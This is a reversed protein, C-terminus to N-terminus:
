FVCGPQVGKVFRGPSTESLYVWNSTSLAGLMQQSGLAFAKTHNRNTTVMPGQHNFAYTSDFYTSCTFSSGEYVILGNWNPANQLLSNPTPWDGLAWTLDLTSGNSGDFELAIGIGNTGSTTRYTGASAPCHALPFTSLTHCTSTYTSDSNLVLQGTGGNAVTWTGEYGTSAAAPGATVSILAAGMAVVTSLLLGLRARRPRPTRRKSTFM